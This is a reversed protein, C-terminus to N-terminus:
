RESVNAEGEGLISVCWDESLVIWERLKPYFGADMIPSQSKHEDAWGGGTVEYLLCGNCVGENNASHWFRPVDREDLVRYGVVRDFLIRLGPADPEYLDLDVVLRSRDFAVSVVLASSTTVVHLPRLSPM